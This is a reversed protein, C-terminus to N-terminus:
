RIEGEQDVVTVIWRDSQYIGKRRALKEAAHHASEWTTYFKTKFFNESMRDEVVGRYKQENM